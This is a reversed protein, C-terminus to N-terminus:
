EKAATGLAARNNWVRVADERAGFHDGRERGFGHPGVAGCNGCVAMYSPPSGPGNYRMTQHEAQPDGCFPCPDVRGYRNLEVSFEEGINPESM